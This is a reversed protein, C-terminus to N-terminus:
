HSMLSAVSQADINEKDEHMRDRMLGFVSEENNSQTLFKALTQPRIRGFNEGKKKAILSDSLTEVDKHTMVGHDVISKVEAYKPNSPM